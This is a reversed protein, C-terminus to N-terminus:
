MKDLSPFSSTNDGAILIEIENFLPCPVKTSDVMMINVDLTVCISYIVTFLWSDM